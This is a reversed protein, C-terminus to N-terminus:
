QQAKTKRAVYTSVSKHTKPPFKTASAIHRNWKHQRIHSESNDFTYEDQSEYRHRPTKERERSIVQFHHQMSHIHLLRSPICSDSAISLLSCLWQWWWWLWTAKTIRKKQNCDNYCSFFTPIHKKSEFLQAFSSVSVWESVNLCSACM